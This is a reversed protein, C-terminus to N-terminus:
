AAPLIEAFGLSSIQPHGTKQWAQSVRGHADGLANARALIELLFARGPRIGLASLPISARLDYGGKDARVSARAGALTKGKASMVCPRKTTPLIVSQIPARQSTPDAQTFVEIASGDWFAKRNASVDTDHVRLALEMRGNALALTGAALLNGSWSIAIDAPTKGVKFSQRLIERFPKAFFLPSPSEATIALPTQPSVKEVRVPFRASAGPALRVKRSSRGLLRFAVPDVKLEVESVFPQSSDNRLVMELCTKSDVSDQVTEFSALVQELSAASRGTLPRVPKFEGLFGDRQHAEILEDCMAWIRDLTLQSSTHPDMMVAHYIHERKGTLCAEVALEQVAINSRCMAALQPPLPGVVTPQLGQRDVLCPVEVCCGEPLNPILSRNRVNGYVTVPVGTEMAAIIQSGYEISRGIEVSEDALMRRETDHWTALISECRRLYEDLPIGFKRVVEGGHHIFWPCYESFHESSETVFYGLRRMMEFRVKDSAFVQPDEMARFLLPYADRGRYKFELFFAVHNIGAVKYGIDEYPLGVYQALQRSTGQVSHCLGVAPVGVARDVAMMNMAMPNTYNLFLPDPAGCRALARGIKVIEPMTRLARFVGGVGLTDAITQRLGYKKPIEFDTVTAPKYGGVQITSIVYRAGECARDLDTTAEIRAPVGLREAVKRALIESVKLRAPDIDMLCIGSGALGPVQLIDCILNKTFVVSGAGIFSIKAM